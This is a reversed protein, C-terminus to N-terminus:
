RNRGLEPQGDELPKGVVKYLKKCQPIRHLETFYNGKIINPLRKFIAFNPWFM